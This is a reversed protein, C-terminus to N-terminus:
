RNWRAKRGRREPGSWSFAPDHSPPILDLAPSPFFPTLSSACSDPTKELSVSNSSHLTLSRRHQPSCFPSPPPAWSFPQLRGGLSPPWPQRLPERTASMSTTKWPRVRPQRPASILQPCRPEQRTQNPIFGSAATEVRVNFTPVKETFPPPSQGSEPKYEYGHWPCVVCGNIIRGEGLPGNQHKCANSLVSVKGDYRFVAVRDGALTFTRGRGDPIEDAACIDVFGADGPDAVQQQDGRRERFGAVLHIVVTWTLGAGLLVALVPTTQSQVTGFLVHLVLLGYAFYVAMHLRKWTPATLNALWFDHSTAAMLFLIVLAVFGLPQFPFHALSAYRTNAIFISVLPNANGLGHFQFTSLGGHALAIVFMTVGLHRRNYLLPLFRRSIRTLPGISLIVHLLLFACTGLGRILATEITANPRLTVTAVIFLALYLLVGGAVTLDYIRKQRNWGIAKYSHTM